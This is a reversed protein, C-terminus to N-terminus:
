GYVSVAFGVDKLVGHMQNFAPRLWRASDGNAVKRGDRSCYNVLCPRGTIAHSKSLSNIIITRERGGPLIAPSLFDADFVTSCYVEDSIIWLNFRRAVNVM